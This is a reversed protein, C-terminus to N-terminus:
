DLVIQQHMTPRVIDKFGKKSLSKEFDVMVNPEGHVLFLTRVLHPAQCAIFQCLDDYDAHASM